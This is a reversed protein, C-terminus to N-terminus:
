CCLWLSNYILQLIIVLVIFELLYFRGFLFLCIRNMYLNNGRRLAIAKKNFVILQWYQCMIAPMTEWSRVLSHNEDQFAFIVFSVIFGRGTDNEGEYTLHLNFGLGQFWFLVWSTSISRFGFGSVLLVWCSAFLVRIGM